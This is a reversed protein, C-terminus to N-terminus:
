PLGGASGAALTITIAPPQIGNRVKLNEKVLDASGFSISKVYYGDAASLPDGLGNILSLEYEGDRLMLTFGGNKAVPVAGFTGSGRVGIGDKGVPSKHPGNAVFVYLSSLHMPLPRGNETVVKGSIPQSAASGARGAPTQPVKFDITDASSGSRVTLVQARGPDTAGPYYTLSDLSGAVIYYRGPPIETLHYSGSDDTETLRALVMAGGSTEVSPASAVMASVRVGAAATGDVFLIQGSVMGGGTQPAASAQALFLSVLLLRKM